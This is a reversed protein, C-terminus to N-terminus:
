WGSGKRYREEYIVDTKYMRRKWRWGGGEVNCKFLLSSSGIRARRGRKGRMWRAPHLRICDVGRMESLSAEKM